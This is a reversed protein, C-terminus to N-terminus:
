ELNKSYIYNTILFLFILNRFLFLGRFGVGLCKGMKTKTKKERRSEDLTHCTPGWKKEKQRCKGKRRNARRVGALTAAAALRSLEEREEGGPDHLVWSLRGDGEEAAVIRRRV